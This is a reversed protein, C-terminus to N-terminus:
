SPRRRSGRARRRPSRRSCPRPARSRRRAWPSTRAPRRSLDGGPRLRGGHGRGAHERRRRSGHRMLLTGASASDGAGISVLPPMTARSCGSHCLPREATTQLRRLAQDILATAIGRRRVDPRVVLDDITACRGASWPRCSTSYALLGVPEDRRRWCRKSRPTSAPLGDGLRHGRRVTRRLRRRVPARARRDVRRRRDRRSARSGPGGVHRLGAVDGHPRAPTAGPTGTSTGSAAADAPGSWPRAAARCPSARTSSAPRSSDASRRAVLSRAVAERHGCSWTTWTAGCAGRTSAPSRRWSSRARSGGGHGAGPGHVKRGALARALVEPVCGGADPSRLAHLRAADERGRSLLRVNVYPNMSSDLTLSTALDHEFHKELLVSAETLGADLLGEAGGREGRGHERLGRRLRGGRVRAAGDRRAPTRHGRRPPLRDRGAARHARLGRRPVPRARDRLEAARRRREGDDALLAGSVPSALFHRVYHEDVASVDDEGDAMERVLHVIAAEDGPGAHRITVPM